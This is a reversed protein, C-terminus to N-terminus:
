RPPSAFTAACPITRSRRAARRRRGTCTGRTATCARQPENANREPNAKLAASTTRCRPLTPRLTGARVLPVKVAMHATETGRTTV